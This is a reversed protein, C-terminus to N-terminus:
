DRKSIKMSKKRGQDPYSRANTKHPAQLGMALVLHNRNLKKAM